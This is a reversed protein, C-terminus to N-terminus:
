NGIKSQLILHEMGGIKRKVCSKGFDSPSQIKSVDGHYIIDVVDKILGATGGKHSAGVQPISNMRSSLAKSTDSEDYGGLYMSFVISYISSEIACYRNIDGIKRVLANCQMVAASKYDSEGGLKLKYVDRYVARIVRYFSERESVNFGADDISADINAMLAAFAEDESVRDSSKEAYAIEAYNGMMGCIGFDGDAHATAFSNFSMTSLAIAASAAAFLSKM